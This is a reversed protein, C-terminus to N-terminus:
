RAQRGIKLLDRVLHAPHGLLAEVCGCLSAVLGDVTTQGATHRFPQESNSERLYLSM